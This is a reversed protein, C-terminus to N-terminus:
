PFLIQGRIEGGPFNVTHIDVYFKGALLDSERIAVGDVFLSGSYSGAKATSNGGITQVIGNTYPGLPSPLAIYGRDAIGHIHIAAVNSSLGSWTIKYTYTKTRKDYTGEIWGSATSTNAPIQQASTLFFDYNSIYRSRDPTLHTDDDKKCSSFLLVSFLSASAILKLTNM